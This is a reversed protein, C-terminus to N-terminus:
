EELLKRLQERKEELRKQRANLAEERAKQQELIKQERKAKADEYKKQQELAKQEQEDIKADIDDATKTVQHGFNRLKQTFSMEAYASTAM